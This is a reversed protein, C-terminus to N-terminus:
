GAGEAASHTEMRNIVERVGEVGYVCKMLADFESALVSGGLTVSGNSARVDVHHPHTVVRGMESRVRAVLKEDSADEHRFVSKAEAMKGQGVDRVYRTSRSVAGGVAESTRHVASYAKDRALARRRRGAAPDFIFM